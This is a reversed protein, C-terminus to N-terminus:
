GRCRPVHPVAVDGAAGTAGTLQNAAPVSLPDVPYIIGVASSDLFGFAQYVVLAVRREAYSRQKRPPSFLPSVFVTRAVTKTAESPGHNM